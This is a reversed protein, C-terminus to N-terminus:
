LEFLKFPRYEDEHREFIGCFRGDAHYMRVKKGGDSSDAMISVQNLKLKNGNQLLREYAEMVQVASLQKFVHEVPVLHEELRGEDRLAEVEELKLAMAAQFGAAKTRELSQM